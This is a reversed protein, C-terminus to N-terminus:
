NQRLAEIPNLRSAKIAPYISSILGVFLCITMGIGVWDWPVQFVSNTLKAVLLGVLLGLIIGIIGGIFSIVMGEVFYQLRINGVSAGIAKSIGIERIRESVSVLLINMLGIAAGTLTVIGIVLGGMTVQNLLDKLGDTAAGQDKIAFNDEDITRLDRVARMVGRAEAMAPTIADNTAVGLKINYNTYKTTYLRHINSIPVLINQSSNGFGEGSKKLIGIIRYRQNMAIISQGLVEEKDQGEFLEAVTDSGAICVNVGSFLENQTFNRGYSLEQNNLEFYDRDVGVMAYTPNTKEGGARFEIFSPGTVTIAVKGPFSLRQKFETAEEYSIVPNPKRTDDTEFENQRNTINIQNAGLPSFLATAQNGLSKIATQIGVLAMIGFGIILCTLITRLLNGRINRLALKIYELVKRYSNM